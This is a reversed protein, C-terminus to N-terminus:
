CFLFLCLIYQVFPCDSALFLTIHKTHTHSLQTWPNLCLVFLVDGSVVVLWTTRYWTNKNPQHSQSFIIFFIYHKPFLLCCRNDNSSLLYLNNNNRIYGALEFAKRVTQNVHLENWKNPHTTQTREDARGGTRGHTHKHSRQLERDPTRMKNLKENPHWKAM